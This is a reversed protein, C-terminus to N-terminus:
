QILPMAEKLFDRYDNLATCKKSWDILPIAQTQAEKIKATERIKSNFVRMHMNAAQKELASIITENISARSDYRVVLVGLLELSNNLYKKVTQTTKYLQDIASLSLYSAEATILIYDSATAAMVNTLNLAPPTDILIYDYNMSIKSLLSKLITEKAFNIEKDKETFLKDVSSLRVSSTIIDYYTTSQISNEISCTGDLVAYLDKAPTEQAFGSVISLSRQADTDVCCVKKGYEKSLLEAIAQISSTKFTGGKPIHFSIIKAM